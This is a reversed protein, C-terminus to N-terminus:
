RSKGGMGWGGEPPQTNFRNKLKARLPMAQWGGKPPQTNFGSEGADQDPERGWGGKPPQTNFCIVMLKVVDSPM